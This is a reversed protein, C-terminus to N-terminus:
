NSETDDYFLPKGNEDLLVTIAIASPGSYYLYEVKTEKDYIIVTYSDFREVIGFRGGFQKDISGDHYDEYSCGVFCATFCIVIVSLLLVIFKKM